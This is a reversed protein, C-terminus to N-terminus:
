WVIDEPSYIWAYKFFERLFDFARDACTPHVLHSRAEPFGRM